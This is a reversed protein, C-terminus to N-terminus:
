RMAQVRSLSGSRTVAGGLEGEGGRGAGAADVNGAADAEGADEEGEPDDGDAEGVEDIGVGGGAVDGRPEGEMAEEGVEGACAM